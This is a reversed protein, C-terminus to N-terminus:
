IEEWRKRMKEITEEPVNHVNKFKGTCEVIEYEYGLDIYPQLEWKKTFTNSVVVNRGKSLFVKTINLCWEHAYKVEQPKWNYNGDADTFYMDAEVHFLNIDDRLMQKAKTSKGSGPLGRILTLKPM